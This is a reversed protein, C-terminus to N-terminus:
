LGGEVQAAATFLLVVGGITILQGSRLPTRDFVRISGDIWTGNTSGLDELWYLGDIYEIAAHSASVRGEPLVIHNGPIRGITTRLESLPLVLGQQPGELVSLMSFGVGASESQQWAGTPVLEGVEMRQTGGAFRSRGSLAHRMEESTQFRQGPEKALCCLIVQEIEQELTENFMRPEPPEQTIVATMIDYDTDGDFPVRGTVMEYLTVGMSYIDSRHDVASPSTFHEPAMYWMTGLKTDAATLRKSRGLIKAIGFDTLYAVEQGGREVVLINAPKLDRHVFGSAHALGLAGLVQDMVHLARGSALVGGSNGLVDDLPLGDILEMAIALKAGDEIFEYVRVINPHLLGAQVIAEDHFREIVQPDRALNSHLVKLAAPRNFRPDFARYVTGMGGEGLVSEIEYHGIREM